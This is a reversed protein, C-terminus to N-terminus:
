RGLQAAPWSANGRRRARLGNRARHPWMADRDTEFSINSLM